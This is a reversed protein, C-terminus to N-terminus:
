LVYDVHWLNCKDFKILTRIHLYYCLSFFSHPVHITPQMVFKNPENNTTFESQIKTGGSM